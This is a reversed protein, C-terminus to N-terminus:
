AARAVGMVESLWSVRGCGARVRSSEARAGAELSAVKQTVGPSNGARTPRTAFPTQM